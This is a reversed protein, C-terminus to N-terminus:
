DQDFIKATFAEAAIELEVSGRRDSFTVLSDLGIRFKGSSLQREPGPEDEYITWEGDGTHADFEIVLIKKEERVTLRGDEGDDVFAHGAIRGLDHAAVYSRVLSVFSIWLEVFVRENGNQEDVAEDM